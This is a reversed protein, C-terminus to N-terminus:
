AQRQHLHRRRGLGVSLDAAKRSPDKSLGANFEVKQGVRVNEPGAMTLLPAATVRPDVPRETFNTVGAGKHVDSTNNKFVNAGADIWDAYEVFIGWRNEMLTNADVVWHYAKWQKGQSGQDGIAAIGAGNNGTCTNGRVAIHSASGFMFVIGAHGSKPLHPSNHSGKPDGNFSAENSDLVTRDSGGMWFGYSCHNAKNSYFTNGPSWCEFGNNNAYSCDNSQFM